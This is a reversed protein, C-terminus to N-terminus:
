KKRSALYGWIYASQGLPRDIVYENQAVFWFVDFFSESTPWESVSPSCTTNLRKELDSGARADSFPLECPGFVTIGVPAPQGTHRSDEHLANKVPNEGLGTTLCMNIPNAGASYLASRLITKLYQEKGTLYHARVLTESAPVTYACSYGGMPRGPAGVTLGFANNASLWVLKDAEAILSDIANKQVKRDVMSKDLRSYVFKADARSENLTALFVKHWRKDNTVRYLDVAALNREYPVRRKASERVKSYDPSSIWKEYEVEAWEMAKVASEKWVLAQEDKGLTQLVYAARAAVGTYIYCSWHDPAYAMVTQTEQWSTSGEIPHESSEVGGRIGGDPLQMRRYIDLGFLAEDVIDPLDNDSEPISLCLNKFYAPNLEFLELYLRPTLLHNIRRDWDGADMYGGWAEPVLIDTKGAVLNDFNNKDTGLANLGNGSNLLSCTSQYVKVGDEPHFSRPRVFDTYPPEMPIGSRHNFVGKMSIEFAHKWTTEEGINFPYSCGIGDVSVRYRGPTNFSSFDLRIVDTANHNIKSGILEPVSGKWQMVTKGTYVKENTIDNILSFELNEQYSYGGGSGMWISLFANKDPDDARFGIQSVHVAESRVVEPDHVYYVASSKLNLDPFSVLYTQYEKLPYPLKIYLFHKSTAYQIKSLQWSSDTWGTPRSKRWVKEPSVAKRYNNDDSSRIQFSGPNDAADTNLNEGAVREYLTITKRDLGVLTGLPFGDRVVFINRIEDLKTTGSETVVDKPDSKYPIQICPIIRCVDIEICLIDPAVASVHSLQPPDQAMGTSPLAEGVKKSKFPIDTDSAQCNVEPNLSLFILSLSVAICIVAKNIKM